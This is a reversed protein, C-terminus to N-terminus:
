VRRYGTLNDRALAPTRPTHVQSRRPLMNYLESPQVPRVDCEWGLINWRKDNSMNTSKIHLVKGYTSEAIIDNPRVLPVIPSVVLSFDQLAELATQISGKQLKPFDLYALQQSQNVQVEIHTWETVDPFTVKLTHPKGDCYKLLDSPALLPHDDVFFSCPVSKRGNWCNVADVGIGHNPFIVQFTAQTGTVSPVFLEFNINGDEGLDAGPHQFNLVKRWGNYVDFGGVFNTGFCIPCARDTIGIGFSDDFGEPLVEILTEVPGNPGVGDPILTTALPNDPDNSWVDTHSGIIREPAPSSDSDWVSPLQPNSEQDIRDQDIHFLSSPKSPNDILAGVQNAPRTGYQEVGFQMGNTLMENVFSADGNGDEGLRTKLASSKSHCACRVGSTLRHYVIAEYGQPIFAQHYKLRQVPALLDIAQRAVDAVRVNSPLLHNNTNLKIPM